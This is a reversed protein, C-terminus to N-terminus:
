MKLIIVIEFFYFQFAVEMNEYNKLRQLLTVEVTELEQVRAELYDARETLGSKEMAVDQLLRKLHQENASLEAVASEMGGSKSLWHEEDLKLRRVLERLRREHVALEHM